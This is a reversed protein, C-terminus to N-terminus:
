WVHISNKAMLFCTSNGFWILKCSVLKSGFFCFLVLLSVVAEQKLCIPLGIWYGPDSSTPFTLLWWCRGVLASQVSFSTTYAGRIM